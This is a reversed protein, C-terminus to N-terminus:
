SPVPDPQLVELLDRDQKPATELLGRVQAFREDGAVIRFGGSIKMPPKVIHLAQEAQNNTFPVRQDTPFHLCADQYM